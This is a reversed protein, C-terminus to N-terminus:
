VGVIGGAVSDKRTWARDFEGKLRELGLMGVEWACEEAQVHKVLGSLKSFVIERRNCSDARCVFPHLVGQKVWSAMEDLNIDNRRIQAHM